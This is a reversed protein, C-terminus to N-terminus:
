WFAPDLLSNGPGSFVILVVFILISTFHTVVYQWVRFPWFVQQYFIVQNRATWIAWLIYTIKSLDTIDIGMNGVHYFLSNLQEDIM